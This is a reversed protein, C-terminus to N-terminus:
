SIYKALHKSRLTTVGGAVELHCGLWASSPKRALVAFGRHRVRHHFRANEVDGTLNATISLKTIITNGIEFLLASASNM